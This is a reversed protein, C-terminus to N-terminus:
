HGHEHFCDIFINLIHIFHARFKLGYLFTLFVSHSSDWKKKQHLTANLFNFIFSSLLSLLPVADVAREYGENTAYFDTFFIMFSEVNTMSSNM